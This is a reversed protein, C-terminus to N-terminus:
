NWLNEGKREGFLRSGTADDTDIDITRCEESALVAPESAETDNQETASRKSLFSRRVEFAIRLASRQLM